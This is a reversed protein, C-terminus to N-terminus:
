SAVAAKLPRKAPVIADVAVARKWADSGVGLSARFEQWADGPVYSDLDAQSFVHEYEPSELFCAFFFEYRRATEVAYKPCASM